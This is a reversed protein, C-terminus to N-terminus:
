FRQHFMNSVEQVYTFAHLEIGLFINCNNLVSKVSEAKRFKDSTKHMKEMLELGSIKEPFGPYNDVNRARTAMGGTKEGAELVLTHLGFLATHIGAALGAPGAGAVIIDHM